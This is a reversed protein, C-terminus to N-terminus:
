GYVGIHSYYSELHPRFSEYDKITKMFIDFIEDYDRFYVVSEASIIENKIYLPLEQFIQIDFIEDVRGLVKMRFDFRGVNDADYFVAIDIDSLDTFTGNVASGYIAIFVINDGGVEKIRQVADSINQDIVDVSDSGKM